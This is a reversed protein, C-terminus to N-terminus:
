SERKRRIMNGKAPRQIILAKHAETKEGFILAVPDIELAACMLLGARLNVRYVEREGYEFRQYQRIQMGAMTAVQQQSYGLKMRARRLMESERTIHRNM